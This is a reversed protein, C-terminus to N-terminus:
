GRAKEAATLADSTLKLLYDTGQQSELKDLAMQRVNGIFPVSQPLLQVAWEEVEKKIVDFAANKEKVTPM